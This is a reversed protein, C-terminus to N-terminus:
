SGNPLTHLGYKQHLTEFLKNRKLILQRYLIISWFKNDAKLQTMDLNRFKSIKM